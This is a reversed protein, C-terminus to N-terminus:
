EWNETINLLEFSKLFCKERKVAVCWLIKTGTRERNIFYTFNLSCYFNSIIIIIMVFHKDIFSYTFSNSTKFTYNLM